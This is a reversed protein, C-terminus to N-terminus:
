APTSYPLSHQHPDVARRVAALEPQLTAQGPSGDWTQPPLLLSLTYAALDDVVVFAVVVTAVVVFAVVVTAVVVFAVVVTAVVVFAVVVTAVVGFVDAAGAAVV